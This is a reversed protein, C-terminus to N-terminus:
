SEKGSESDDGDSPENKEQEATENKADEVSSLEASTETNEEIDSTAEDASNGININKEDNIQKKRTTQSSIKAVM